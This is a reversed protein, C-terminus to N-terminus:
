WKLYSTQVVKDAVNVDVSMQIEKDFDEEEFHYTSKMTNCM